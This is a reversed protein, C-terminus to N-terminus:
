AAGQRPFGQDAAHAPPPPIWMEMEYAGRVRPFRRITGDELNLIAGGGRGFMVVKNM